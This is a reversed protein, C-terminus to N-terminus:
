DSPTIGRKVLASEFRAASGPWLAVNLPVAASASRIEFCRVLREGFSPKTRRVQISDDLPLRHRPFVRGLVGTARAEIYGDGVVVAGFPWSFRLNSLESNEYPVNWGAPFRLESM